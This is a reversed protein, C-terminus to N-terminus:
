DSFINTVKSCVTTLDHTNDGDNEVYARLIPETGSPRVFIRTGDYSAIVDSLEIVKDLPELLVTQDETTRYGTRDQVPIKIVRHERVKFLEHFEKPSMNMQQLIYQVGVLNMIADGVIQNFLKKLISLEEVNCDNNIQVSGHGNAEFYIAIDYNKGAKILHKVGVPTVQRSINIRRDIDRTQNALSDVAETFGGNSYGTHIIGIRIQDDDFHEAMHASNLLSYVIYKLILMSIHDGNMLHINLNTIDTYPIYGNQDDPSLYYFVIRDADGDFSCYLRKTISQRTQIISDNMDSIDIYEHGIQGYGGSSTRKIIHRFRNETSHTWINRFTDTDTLNILHRSLNNEVYDSGCENNLKSASAFDTNICIPRNNTKHLIDKMTLYGVGNACDVILNSLDVSYNSILHRMLRVYYTIPKSPYQSDSYMAIDAVQAYNPKLYPHNMYDANPSYFKTTLIHLEPTTKCGVCVIHVDPLIREVGKIIFDIITKGSPRTDKAIVLQLQSADLNIKTYDDVDFTKLLDELSYSSNVVEELFKEEKNTVMVGEQDVIKIGNDESPNHSATVVVGWTGVLKVIQSIRTNSTLTCQICGLKEVRKLFRRIMLLAIAEGMRESKEIMLSANYRFGSTGYNIYQTTSEVSDNTSGINTIQAIENNNM